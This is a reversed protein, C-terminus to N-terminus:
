LINWSKPHQAFFTGIESAWYQESEIQSQLSLVNKQLTRSQQFCCKAQYTTQNIAVGTSAQQHESTSQQALIISRNATRLLKPWDVKPSVNVPQELRPRQQTAYVLVKLNVKLKRTYQLVVALAVLLWNWYKQILTVGIARCNGLYNMGPSMIDSTCRRAGFDRCCWSTACSFTPLQSVPTVTPKIYRGFVWFQFSSRFYLM